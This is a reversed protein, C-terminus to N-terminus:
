GLLPRKRKTPLTRLHLRNLPNETTNSQRKHDGTMPFSLEYLGDLDPTFVWHVKESTACQNAQHEEIHKQQLCKM